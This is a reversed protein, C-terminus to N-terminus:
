GRAKVAELIQAKTMKSELLRVLEAREAAIAESFSRIRARAAELNRQWNDREAVHSAVIAEQEQLRQRTEGLVDRLGYQVHVELRLISEIHDRELSRPQQILWAINEDILKQYTERNIASM